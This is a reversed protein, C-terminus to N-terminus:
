AWRLTEAARVEWHITVVVEAQEEKAVAEAVVEAESAPRVQDSPALKIDSGTEVCSHGM